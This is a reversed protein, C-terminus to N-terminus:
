EVRNRHQGAQFARINEAMEEVVKTRAEYSAWAIHPTLCVNDLEKIQHFPHDAPFPEQSYVDCGFAAIQGTLVAQAVAAEDCVAGRAVNVVIASPKMLELRRRDIMSRTSDNLPCHLTIVDSQRCLTDLDTSNEDPRSRHCLVRCGFARAIKAVKQGINGYGVIGWTKGSLDHFVPTLRNPLGLAAYEGSRVFASFEPLHTMLELVMAVTVLAVSQTSYGPVNCVAIGRERCCATDVNDFGTASICILKLRPACSLVQRTMKTKNIIAIETDAIRELVQAPTSSPYIECEGLCTLPTLPLDNGITDRDFVTIKM